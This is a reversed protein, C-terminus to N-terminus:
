EELPSGDREQSLLNGEADFVCDWEKLTTALEVEFVVGSEALEWRDVAAVRGEQGALWARAKDPLDSTTAVYETRVWTGDPNFYAEVDDQGQWAYVAEYLEGDFKWEPESVGAYRSEFASRVVAPVEGHEFHDEAEYVDHMYSTVFAFGALLAVVVVGTTIYLRRRVRAQIAM